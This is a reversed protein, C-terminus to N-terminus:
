FEWQLLNGTVVGLINAVLDQEDLRGTRRQDSVEKLLGAALVLGSSWGRCTPSIVPSQEMAQCGRMTAEVAVSSLGFHAAKDTTWTGPGASSVGSMLLLACGLGSYCFDYLRLHSPMIIRGTKLTIEPMKKSQCMLSTKDM